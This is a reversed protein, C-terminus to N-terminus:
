IRDACLPFGHLCEEGCPLWISFSSEVEIQPNLVLGGCSVLRLNNTCLSHCSKKIKMNQKYSITNISPTKDLFQKDNSSLSLLTLSCGVKRDIFPRRYYLKGVFKSIVISSRNVKSLEALARLIWVAVCALSAAPMEFQCPFYFRTFAVLTHIIARLTRFGPFVDDGYHM